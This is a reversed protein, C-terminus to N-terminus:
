ATALPINLATVTVTQNAAINTNDLQLDGGAGTMSVSGDIREDTGDTSGADTTQKLRFWTPVGAGADANQWTGAKAKVGAAAAAFADAPLSVSRVLSGTAAASATAPQTGTRLELVGSNFIADFGTDLIANLTAPTAKITM